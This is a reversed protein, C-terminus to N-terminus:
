KQKNQMADFMKQRNDNQHKERQQATVAGQKLKEKQMENNHQVGADKQLFDLDKLDADSSLNKAKSLESETKARKLDVDAENELGKAEENRVEAELKKLQLQQAYIQEESPEPEQYMEVRKAEEPMDNLRLLDSIMTRQLDPQVNPAVTQLIFAMRDAKLAKSEQTGISMKIDINGNLDERRVPVFEEDTISVVVEEDLLMSDM